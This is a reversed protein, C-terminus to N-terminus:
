ILVLHYLIYFKVRYILCIRHNGKDKQKVLTMKIVNNHKMARNSNCKEYDRIYNDQRKGGYEEQYHRCEKIEGKETSSIRYTELAQM